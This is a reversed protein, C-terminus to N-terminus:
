LSYEREGVRVDLTAKQKCKDRSLHQLKFSALINNVKFHFCNFCRREAMLDSELPSIRFLSVYGVSLEGGLM